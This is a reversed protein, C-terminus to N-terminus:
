YLKIQNQGPHSYIYQQANHKCSEVKVLDPQQAVKKSSFMCCLYDIINNIIAIFKNSYEVTTDFFWKACNYIAQAINSKNNQNQPNEDNNKSEESSNQFELDNTYQSHNNQVAVDANQEENSNPDNHQM